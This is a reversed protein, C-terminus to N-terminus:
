FTQRGVVGAVAKSWGDLRARRAGEALAPEFTEVEGRMAAADALSEFWGCGVGALMAAGLATTEAFAPREVTLALMDAM